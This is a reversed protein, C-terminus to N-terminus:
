KIILNKKVELKTLFMKIHNKQERERERERLVKM